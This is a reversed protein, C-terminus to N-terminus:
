MTNRDVGYMFCENRGGKYNGTYLPLVLGIKNIVNLGKPTITTSVDGLLYKQSIQYGRYGIETWITKVYRRGISSLSLPIGVGGIKFNFDEM